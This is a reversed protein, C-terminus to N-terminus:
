IQTIGLEAGAEVFPAVSSFDYRRGRDVLPWRIGERAARIGVARLRRYDESVFRDHQTAAIQDIWQNDRNRGTACEFGALFLSPWLRTPASTSPPSTAATM